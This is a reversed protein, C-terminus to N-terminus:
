KEGVWAWLIGLAAAGPTIHWHKFGAPLLLVTGRKLDEYQEGYVLRGEGQTAIAIQFGRHIKGEATQRYTVHESLFHPDVALPRALNGQEERGGRPLRGTETDCFDMVALAQDIHLARPAGKEDRRGYDYVRYTVDSNEQIEALLVGAGIGHVRGAPLFFADGPAVPAANVLQEFRNEMVAVKVESLTQPQKFGILLEAGPRSELIYWMETKGLEGAHHTQAYEDRPHVQLSLRDSAGIFKILLPFRQAPKGGPGLLAEPHKEILARLTTGAWPGNAVVSNEGPRDSIEWSEGIKAQAPVPAGLARQHWDGGWLREQYIPKFKLPYNPTTM